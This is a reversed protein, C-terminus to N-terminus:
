LGKSRAFALVEQVVQQLSLDSSDIKKAGEAERLPAVKRQSDLSDRVVQLEQTKEQDAGVEASRRQARLNPNATLFVKVPAQPFVVTGCDRGEAVLGEIPQFCKRQRNLLAKRVGPIQSIQSALGGVEEGTTERTVDLGLYIVQSQEPTMVVEWQRSLALQVLPEEEDDSVGQKLAALALGRYFAGTSVWKWGLEEAVLRSVTSKGSASPGDITILKKISL